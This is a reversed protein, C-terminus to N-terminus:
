TVAAVPDATPRTYEERGIEEVEVAVHRNTARAYAAKADGEDACNAIEAIPLEASASGLPTVRYIRGVVVSPAPVHTEKPWIDAIKALAKQPNLATSRLKIRAPLRKPQDLQQALAAREEAVKAMEEELKRNRAELADLRKALADRDKAAKDDAKASEEVAAAVNEANQANGEAVASSTKVEPEAGEATEDKKAKTNM